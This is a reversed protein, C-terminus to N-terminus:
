NEQKDKRIVSWHFFFLPLGVFILSLSLAADRQRSAKVYDIKKSTEEWQKYDALWRKVAQRDDETLNKDQTLATMSKENFYPMTPQARYIYQEKDAEKLVFTKLGLNFLQVSAVVVMVLGILAFLYFYITKVVNKFSQTMKTNSTIISIVVLFILLLIAIIIM